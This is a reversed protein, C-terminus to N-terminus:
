VVGVNGWVGDEIRAQVARFFEPRYTRSKGILNWEVRVGWRDCDERTISQVRAADFDAWFENDEIPFIFTEPPYSMTKLIRANWHILFFSPVNYAARNRMHRLQRAKSARTDQRYPGLAFSAQSCVKCDFMFQHGSASVGEFDPLSQIPMWKGDAFVGQVGYETILAIGLKKYEGARDKCLAQFDKGSLDENQYDTM